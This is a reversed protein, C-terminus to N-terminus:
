CLGEAEQEKTRVMEAPVQGRIDKQQMKSQSFQLHHTNTKVEGDNM